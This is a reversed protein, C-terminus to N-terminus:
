ICRGWFGHEQKLRQFLQPSLSFTCVQTQARAAHTHTTRSPKTKIHKNKLFTIKVSFSLASWVNEDNRQQIKQKNQKQKDFHKNLKRRPEKEAAKFPDTPVFVYGEASSVNQTSGSGVLWIKNAFHANTQTNTWCRKLSCRLVTQSPFRWTKVMKSTISIMSPALSHVHMAVPKIKTLWGFFVFSSYLPVHIIALCHSKAFCM